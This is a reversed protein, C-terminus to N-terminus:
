KQKNKEHDVGASFGYNWNEYERTGFVYPNNTGMYKEPMKTSLGGAGFGSVYAEYLNELLVPYIEKKLGQLGHGNSNSVLNRYQVTTSLLGTIMIDKGDLTLLQGLHFGFKSYKNM